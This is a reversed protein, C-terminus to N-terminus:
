EKAGPPRAAPQVETRGLLPEIMEALFRGRPPGAPEVGAALMVQLVATHVVDCGLWDVAVSRDRLLHGLLIEADESGCVGLLAVGGDPRLAVTM